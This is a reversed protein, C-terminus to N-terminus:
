ERPARPPPSPSVAGREGVQTPSARAGLVRREAGLDDQHEPRPEGLRRLGLPRHVLHEAIQGLAPRASAARRTSLLEAGCSTQRSGPTRTSSDPATSGEPSPWPNPTAAASTDASAHVRTDSTARSRVAWNGLKERFMMRDAPALTM